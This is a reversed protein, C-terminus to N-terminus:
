NNNNILIIHLLLHLKQDTHRVSNYYMNHGSILPEHKQMIKKKYSPVIDLIRCLTPCVQSAQNKILWERGVNRLM